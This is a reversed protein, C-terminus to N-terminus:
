IRQAIEIRNGGPDRIYFRLWNAIPEPDPIIEVDARKLEEETQALDEVLYCIHRKSLHNSAAQEEISLHLEVEGYRYWAGGRKQKNEPKPVEELGLINRYFHKTAVELAAPVTIQIHNIASIKIAM